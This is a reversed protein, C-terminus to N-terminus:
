EDEGGREETFEQWATLVTKDPTKPGAKMLEFFGRLWYVFERETM